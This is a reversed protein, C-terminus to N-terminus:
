ILLTDVANRAPNKPVEKMTKGEKDSSLYCPHSNPFMLLDIRLISRLKPYFFRDRLVLIDPLNKFYKM